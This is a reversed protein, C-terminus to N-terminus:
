SEVLSWQLRTGKTAKQKLKKGLVANLHRAALGYGPRISRVNKSTILEGAKMDEVIYLSRRSRKNDESSLCGYTVQGLSKYAIQSEAVLASFENPELSFASDVGGEDRSLVFHKEIICGGLAVSAIAVGIGLTHDSLGVPAGVLQKLHPLTLLNADEPNAPYAATCKLFIAQQCGHDLLTKTILEIDSITAMGLSVIVPKGTQAIYKLLNTDTNETSAVKYCPCNLAELFDVATNDFPSSFCIIGLDHCKQFIAQHWEWPTYAKKYLQHMTNGHWLSDLDNIEFDPNGPVDITLTEATYTQLKIASAGSKKAMEVITLAKDLSQNHNGSMEAIIFPECGEGVLRNAIKIKNNFIM